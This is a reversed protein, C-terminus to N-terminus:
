KSLIEFQKNQYKPLLILEKLLKFSKIPNKVTQLNIIFAPVYGGPDLVFQHVIDLQGNPLQTIKWFGQCNAIQLYKKSPKYYENICSVDIHLFKKEDDYSMENLYIGDRNKIPFPTRVTIYNVYKDAEDVYSVVEDIGEFLEPYVEFDKFVALLASLQGEMRAEIRYTDFKSWDNKKTFAKIEEDEKRLTWDDQCFVQAGFILAVLLMFLRLIM